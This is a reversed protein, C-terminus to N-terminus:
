DAWGCYARRIPAGSPDAKAQRRAKRSAQQKYWRKVGPRLEASRWFWARSKSTPGLRESRMVPAYCPVM